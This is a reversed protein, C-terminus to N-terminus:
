SWMARDSPVKVCTYIYSIGFSSQINKICKKSEYQGQITDKKLSFIYAM